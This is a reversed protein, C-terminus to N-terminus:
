EISPAFRSFIHNRGILRALGWAAVIAILWVYLVLGVPLAIRLFSYSAADLAVLIGTAITITLLTSIRPTAVWGLCFGFLAVVLLLARRPTVALETLYRGDLLQALIQAHVMVGLMKDGTSASLPTDHLDSNPMDIGILVIKSSIRRQLERLHAQDAGPLLDKASITLFPEANLNPGIIWAIPTFGFSQDAGKLSAGAARAVSHAFGEKSVPERSTRTRRIVRDGDYRFSLLGAPRGSSSLFQQQFDKQPQDLNDAEIAGLVIPSKASRVADLFLLDKESIKLPWM